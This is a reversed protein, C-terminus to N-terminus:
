IKDCLKPYEIFFVSIQPLVRLTRVPPEFLGPIIMSSMRTDLCGLDTNKLIVSWSKLKLIFRYMTAYYRIYNLSTM